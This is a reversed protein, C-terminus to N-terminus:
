IQLKLPDSRTTQTFRARFVPKFSSVFIWAVIIMVVAEIESQFNFFIELNQMIPMLATERHDHLGIAVWIKVKLSSSPTYARFM